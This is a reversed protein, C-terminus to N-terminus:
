RELIPFRLAVWVGGLPSAHASIRGDHAEVISRCIALGLGSGGTARNRSIEGRFFREFLQPLLTEPVGPASDMFDICVEDGDRRAVVKLCGGPDTYRLTNEVLNRFLQRLRSEDAALRLGPALDLQLALGGAMLRERFGGVTSEVIEGVALPAKRYVLAGVDALALENLDNVLRTLNMVEAKLSPLADADLPRVGDEMAELEGRLVALPTRLEHSVDAMFDRRMRENAELARALSNFDRALQGVEDSSSPKVRETYDGAALRHTAAAVQKIPAVLSRAIWLSIGVAFLAAIGGVLLTAHLHEDYFRRAGTDSVKQFPGMVLWGVTQGDVEIARKVAGEQTAASPNGMVFRQERDVLSLRFVAGTLDSEPPTDLQGGRPRDENWHTPDDDGTQPRTLHFWARRNNRLFDWNGERGYARVFKPLVDEIRQLALEDMYGVFGRTFSWRGVAGMALLVALAVLLVALFAKTTIGLKM